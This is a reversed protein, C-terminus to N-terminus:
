WAGQLTLYIYGEVADTYYVHLPNSSSVAYIIEFANYDLSLEEIYDEFLHSEGEQTVRFSDRLLYNIGTDILYGVRVGFNKTKFKVVMDNM